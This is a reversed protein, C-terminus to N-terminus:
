AYLWTDIRTYGADFEELLREVVGAKGTPVMLVGRGLKRGGLERLLGVSRSTYVKDGKRKRTNYGYLRANLKMKIAQPLAKLTYSIVTYPRVAIGNLMVQPSKAYLVVGEGLVKQVFYSDLGEYLRNTYVIQLAIRYTAELDAAIRGIHEIVESPPAGETDLVVLCDIDSGKQTKGQAVSGFLIVSWVNLDSVQSAFEFAIQKLPRKM